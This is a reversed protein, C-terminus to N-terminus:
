GARIGSTRTREEQLCFSSSPTQKGLGLSTPSRTGVSAEAALMLVTSGYADTANVNAGADLSQRAAELDNQSAAELLQENLKSKETGVPNTAPINSGQTFPLSALDFGLVSPYAGVKPLGNLFLGKHMKILESNPGIGKSVIRTEDTCFAPLHAAYLNPAEDADSSLPISAYEGTELNVVYLSWGSSQEYSPRIYFQDQLSSAHTQYTHQM